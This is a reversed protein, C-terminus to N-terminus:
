PFTLVVPPESLIVIQNEPDRGVDLFAQELETHATPGWRLSDGNTHVTMELIRDERRFRITEFKQAYDDYKTAM